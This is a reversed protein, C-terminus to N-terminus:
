EAHVTGELVQMTKRAVDDWNHREMVYRIMEENRHYPQADLERLKETLEKMSGAKFTYGFGNMTKKNEPIDSTVITLGNAMGELLSISMGELDSPLVYIGSHTFLQRLARGELFGTMIINPDEMAFQLTPDPNDPIQGVIVLKKKVGSLKYSNILLDLRKEPVIRGVYLIYGGPTLGYKEIEDTNLDTKMTVGNEILITKRGYENKFYDQMDQSLVIIEDAYRVMMKEGTKIYWSALKGWKARAWDLGHVTGVIRAGSAKIIPLFVAPGEAHVHAVDYHGIAIQISSFLSAVAANLKSNSLTPSNRFRMPATWPYKHRPKDLECRNYVTVFHKQGIRKYLETVVVEIGGSRTYAQKHGFVAIKM